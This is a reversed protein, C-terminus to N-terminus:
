NNLLCPLHLRSDTPDNGQVGSVQIKLVEKRKQSVGKYFAVVKKFPLIWVLIRFSPVHLSQGPLLPSSHARGGESPWLGPDKARGGWGGWSPDEPLPCPSSPPMIWESNLERFRDGNIPNNLDKGRMHHVFLLVPFFCDQRQCSGVGHRQPEALLSFLLGSASAALLVELNSPSDTSKLGCSTVLLNYHVPTKRGSLVWEWKLAVVEKHPTVEELAPLSAWLVCCLARAKRLWLVRGGVPDGKERRPRRPRLWIICPPPFLELPSDHWSHGRLLGMALSEPTAGAKGPSM